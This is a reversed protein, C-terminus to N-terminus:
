EPKREPLDPRANEPIEYGTQLVEPPPLDCGCNPCQSPGSVAVVKERPLDKAKNYYEIVWATKENIM